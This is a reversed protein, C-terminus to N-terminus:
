FNKYGDSLRFKFYIYVINGNDCDKHSKNIKLFCTMISKKNLLMETFDKKVDTDFLLKLGKKM